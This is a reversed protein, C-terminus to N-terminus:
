AAIRPHRIGGCSNVAEGYQGRLRGLVERVGEGADIGLIHSREHGAAPLVPGVLM